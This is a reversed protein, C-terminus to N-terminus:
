AMARGRRELNRMVSYMNKIGNNLNGNGLGRVADTTMVFEGPMLMARVSDQGPIGEDPMIGGNRRPFIAGGDAATVYPRAFPGGPTSNQLYTTSPNYAYQTPAVYTSYEPSRITLDGVMGASYSSRPVYQGTEPDLVVEGLDGVLYKGPDAAVLDEGTIVNGQEDRMAIDLPEAPVPSFAGTAAATAMGVGALPAYTRLFGPTAGSVINQAATQQATTAALPNIGSAQLYQTASPNTIVEGAPLSGGSLTANPFFADGLSETFTRGGPTFADKISEMFTPPKSLTPATTVAEAAAQAPTIPTGPANPAVNAVAQDPTLAPANTAGTVEPAAADVVSTPEGRTSVTTELPGTAGTAAAPAQYQSFFGQQGANAARAAEGGFVNSLSTQAGSITQGFRGIPDALGTKINEMFSGGGTFGQFVAGTAGAVLASKLADKISGGQILTGIGSGLAAGYIPGLPTFSLAIPLIVPAVKKVVKVVAKVVKKVTNVVKKFLKKLFFEPAGTAPNISNADSGVVYREPDEVGMDRLRQFIGEKLEEDQEILALPIVLEGTQLHAVIDDGERGMAAMKKTLAPFQAIGEDGYEETGDDDDGYVAEIEDDEMIFNGIGGDPVTLEEVKQAAQAM